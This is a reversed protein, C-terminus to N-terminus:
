RHPSYYRKLTCSSCPCKTNMDEITRVRTCLYVKGIGHADDAVVALDDVYQKLEKQKDELAELRALLSPM